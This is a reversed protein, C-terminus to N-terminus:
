RGVERRILELLLATGAGAIAYFIKAGISVALGTRASDIGIRDLKEQQKELGAVRADLGTFRHCAQSLDDLREHVRARKKNIDAVSSEIQGLREEQRALRELTTNMREQLSLMTQQGEKIQTVMARLEVVDSQLRGTNDTVCRASELAEM